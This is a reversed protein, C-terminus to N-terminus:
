LEDSAPSRFDYMFDCTKHLLSEHAIRSALTHCSRLNNERGYFSDNYRRWGLVYVGQDPYWVDVIASLGDSRTPPTPNGLITNYFRTSQLFLAEHAIRRTLSCGSKLTTKEARVVTAIEEGCGIKIDGTYIHYIHKSRWSSDRLLM